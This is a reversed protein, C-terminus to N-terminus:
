YDNDDDDNVYPTMWINRLCPIRGYGDVRGEVYAYTLLKFTRVWGCMRVYADTLSKLISVWGGIKVMLMRLCVSKQFIGTGVADCANM